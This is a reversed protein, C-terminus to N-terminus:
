PLAEFRQMPSSPISFRLVRGAEALGAITSRLTHSVHLVGFHQALKDVDDHGAEIAALVSDPTIDQVSM